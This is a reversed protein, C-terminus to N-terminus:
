WEVANLGMRTEPQKLRVSVLKNAAQIKSKFGYVGLKTVLM